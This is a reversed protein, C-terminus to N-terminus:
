GLIGKPVPVTLFRVFVLYILLLLVLGFVIAFGKREVKLLFTLSLFFLFSASFFGLKGLLYIYVIGCLLTILFRRPYPIWVVKVSAERSLSFLLLAVSFGLISGGIFRVYRAAPLAREPFTSAYYLVAGALVLGALAFFFDVRNKVM